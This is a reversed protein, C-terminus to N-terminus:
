PVSRRVVEVVLCLRRAALRMALSPCGPDTGSTLILLPASGGAVKPALVSVEPSHPVLAVEVM